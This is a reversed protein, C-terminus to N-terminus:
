TALVYFCNFFTNGLFPVGSSTAPVSDMVIQVMVTMALLITVSLSVKEGSDVPLLFTFSGVVVLIM